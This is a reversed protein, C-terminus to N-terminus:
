GIVGFTRIHAKGNISFMLGTFNIILWMQFSCVLFPM